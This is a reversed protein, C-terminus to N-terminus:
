PEKSHLWSETILYLNASQAASEIPNSAAPPVGPEPRVGLHHVLRLTLAGLDPAPLSAYVSAPVMSESPWVPMPPQAPLPKEQLGSASASEIVPSTVQEASGPLRAGRVLWAVLLVAALLCMIQLFYRGVYWRAWRWALRRQAVRRDRQWSAALAARRVSEPDPVPHSSTPPKLRSSRRWPM